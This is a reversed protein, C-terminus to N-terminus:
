AVCGSCSGGAITVLTWFALRSWLACRSLIVSCSYGRGNLALTWFALRSRLLGVSKVAVLMLIAGTFSLIAGPFILLTGSIMLVTLLGILVSWLGVLPWFGM